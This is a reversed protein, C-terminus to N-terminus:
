QLAVLIPILGQGAQLPRLAKGIVAGFARVSDTAKMGFGPRASTTLMDGVAIPAPDADVKCYVKGVLALPMREQLSDRRGLILGPRYDGAGSIVGAVKKDYANQSPQVAGNDTLVMVTGPDIEASPAVDFDEACDSGLVVDVKATLTKTVTVDGEFYGATKDSVAHVGYGGQSEGYLGNGGSKNIGAVGSDARSQSNGQVGDGTISSGYVGQGGGTKKPGTSSNFGAVGRAGSANSGNSEGHVGEGGNSIGVVGRNTSQSEGHVGWGKASTGKVGTGTDSTGNVGTSNGIGHVGNAGGFGVVGDLGWDMNEDAGSLGGNVGIVGGQGYVACTIPPSSTQKINTM